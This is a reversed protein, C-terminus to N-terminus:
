TTTCHRRVKLVTSRETCHRTSVHFFVSANALFSKGKELTCFNLTEASLKEYKSAIFSSHIFKQHDFLVRCRVTSYFFTCYPYQVIRSQVQCRVSGTVYMCSLFSACLMVNCVKSYLILLAHTVSLTNFLGLSHEIPYQKQQMGARIQPAERDNNKAARLVVTGVMSYHLADM